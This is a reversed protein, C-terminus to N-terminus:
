RERAGRLATMARKVVRLCIESARAAELLEPSNKELDLVGRASGAEGGGLGSAVVDMGYPYAVVVFDGSALGQEVRSVKLLRVDICCIHRGIKAGRPRDALRTSSVRGWGFGAGARKLGAANCLLGGHARRGCGSVGLM